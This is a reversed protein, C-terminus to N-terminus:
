GFVLEISWETLNMFAMRERAMAMAETVM